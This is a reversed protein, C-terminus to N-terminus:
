QAAPLLHGDIPNSIVRLSPNSFIAGAAQDYYANNPGTVSAFYRGNVDVTISNGSGIEESRTPDNAAVRYWTVGSDVKGYVTATLTMMGNDVATVEATLGYLHAGDAWIRNYWGAYRQDLGQMLGDVFYEYTMLYPWRFWNLHQSPQIQAAIERLPTVSDGEKYSCLVDLIDRMDKNQETMLHLMEGKQWVQEMWAYQHPESYVYWNVFLPQDETFFTHGTEFDWVPGFTLLSHEEDDRDKYIYTSTRYAEWNLYYAYILIQTAFSDSDIYESYHRGLSNYGTPSFLANEFNQVYQAIYQVMEKSPHDPSKINIFIDHATWFGYQGYGLKSLELVYGGTIDTLEDSFVAHDAYTYQKIGSQIAPDDTVHSGVVYCNEDVEVIADEMNTVRISGGVDMRETLLYTGRYDGNIYVDTVRACINFYDEKVMANYTDFAAFFSLTTPDNNKSILRIATMSWKKSKGANDILETKKALNINLSNKTELEGTPSYSSNGRGKVKTLKGNYLVEGDEECMVLSGTELNEKSLNIRRLADDGDDLTIFMTALNQTKKVNLMYRIYTDAAADYEYVYNRGSTLTIAFESGPAYLTGTYEDYFQREGTYRVIVEALDSCSPLILYHDNEKEYFKIETGNGYNESEIECALVTLPPIQDTMTMNVTVPEAAGCQCLLLIVILALFVTKMLSPYIRMMLSLGEETHDCIPARPAHIVLLSQKAPYM